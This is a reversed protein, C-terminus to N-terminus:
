PFVSRKVRQRRRGVWELEREMVQAFAIWASILLSELYIDSWTVQYHRWPTLAEKLHSNCVIGECAHYPIGFFVFCFLVCACVNGLRYVISQLKEKPKEETSLMSFFHLSVHHLGIRGQRQLALLLAKKSVAPVLSSNKKAKSHQGWNCAVGAVNGLM